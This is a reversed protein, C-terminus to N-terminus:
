GRPAERAFSGSVPGAEGRELMVRAMDVQETDWGDPHDVIHEYFKAYTEHINEHSLGSEGSGYDGNWEHFYEALLTPMTPFEFGGMRDNQLIDLDEDSMAGVIDAVKDCLVERKRDPFTKINSRSESYIEWECKPAKEQSGVFWPGCERGTTKYEVICDIVARSQAKSSKGTQRDFVSFKTTSAAGRQREFVDKQFIVFRGNGATAVPSMDPTCLPEQFNTM